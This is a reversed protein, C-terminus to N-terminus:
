IECAVPHAVPPNSTFQNSVKIDRHIVGREQLWWCDDSFVWFLSQRIAQTSVHAHLLASAVHRVCNAARREDFGCGETARHKLQYVDSGVAYEVMLYVGTPDCFIGYLDAVAPHDVCARQNDIERGLRGALYPVNMRGSPKHTGAHLLQSTSFFKLALLGRTTKERVLLVTGFNGEGLPKVLEFDRRTWVRENNRGEALAQKLAGTAAREETMKCEDVPAACGASSASGPSATGQTAVPQLAQRKRQQEPSNTESVKRKPAAQLPAM